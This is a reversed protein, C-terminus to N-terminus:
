KKDFLYAYNLNYVGTQVDGLADWALSDDSSSSSTRPSSPVPQSPAMPLARALDERLLSLRYDGVDSPTSLALGGGALRQRRRQRQRLLRGHAGIEDEVVHTDLVPSPPPRRREAPSM